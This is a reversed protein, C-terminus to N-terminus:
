RVFGRLARLVLWLAFGGAAIVPAIASPDRVPVFRAEGDRVEIYGAPKASVVGGGGGGSGQGKGPENGAGGGGGAGWRVRAVPIVTIGPREVPTGFVAQANATGGVRDIIGNVIQDVPREMAAEAQRMASELDSM